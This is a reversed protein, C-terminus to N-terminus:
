RQRHGREGEAKCLVSETESGKLAEMTALQLASSVRLRGLVSHVCKDRGLSIKQM